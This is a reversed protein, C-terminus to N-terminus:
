KSAVHRDCFTKGGISVLSAIESLHCQGKRDHVMVLKQLNLAASDPETRASGTGSYMVARSLEREATAETPVPGSFADM